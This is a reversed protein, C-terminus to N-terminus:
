PVQNAVQGRTEPTLESIVEELHHGMTYHDEDFEQLDCHPLRKAIHRIMRVPSNKDKAGHWMQIKDYGVDEFRFGWDETLLRAEQVTGAAGQAFAELTMAILRERSEQTSTAGDEDQKGRRMGDIWNDLWRTVPGSDVIGRLMKIFVNSVTELGTPWSIAAQSLVRRYWSVDQTGATWPGAGAVVGVASLMEPPLAHACAIAYPGGGSCGLIAFRSLKLHTALARVDNPWDMIKRQPHFTSLGFGPRDPVIFRLGRREPLKGLGLGELRSSPYGHFYMLPFGSPTGYEAYGLVRGDHLTLTQNLRPWPPTKM